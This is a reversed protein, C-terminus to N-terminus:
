HKWPHPLPEPLGRAKKYSLCNESIWSKNSEYSLLFFPTTILSEPYSVDSRPCKCKRGKHTLHNVQGTDRREHPNTNVSLSLSHHCGRQQWVGAVTSRKQSKYYVVSVSNDIKSTWSNTEYKSDRFCVFPCILLVNHVTRFPTPTFSKRWGNILSRM